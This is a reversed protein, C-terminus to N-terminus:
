PWPWVRTFLAQERTPRHLRRPDGQHCRGEPPRPVYLPVPRMLMRSARFSAHQATAALMLRAFLSMSRGVQEEQEAETEDDVVKFKQQVVGKPTADKKVSQLPLTAHLEVTPDNARRACASTAPRVQQVSGGSAMPVNAPPEADAKAGSRPKPTCNETMFM